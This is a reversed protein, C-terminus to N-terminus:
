KNRLPWVTGIFGGLTLAAFVHSADGYGLLAHVAIAVMLVIAMACTLFAFLRM